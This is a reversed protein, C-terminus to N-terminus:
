VDSEEELNSMMASVINHMALGLVQHHAGDKDPEPILNGLTRAMVVFLAHVYYESQSRDIFIDTAKSVLKTALEIDREYLEKADSM